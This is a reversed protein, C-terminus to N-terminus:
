SLQVMAAQFPSTGSLNQNTANSGSDLIDGTKAKESTVTKVNGISQNRKIVPVKKKLLYKNKKSISENKAPDSSSAAQEIRTSAYTTAVDVVGVHTNRPIRRSHQSKSQSNMRGFPEENEIFRQDSYQNSDKAM